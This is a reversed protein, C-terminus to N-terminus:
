TLRNVVLLSVGVIVVALTSPAMAGAGSLAELEAVSVSNCDNGMCCNAVCDGVSLTDSDLQIVRNIEDFILGRITDTCSNVCNEESVCAGFATSAEELEDRSNTFTASADVRICGFDMGEPCPESPPNETSNFSITMVSSGAICSLQGHVFLPLCCIIALKVFNSNM